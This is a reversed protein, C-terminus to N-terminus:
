SAYVFIIGQKPLVPVSSAHRKVTRLPGSTAQAAVAGARSSLGMERIMALQWIIAFLIWPTESVDNTVPVDMAFGDPAEAQAAVDLDLARESFVLLLLAVMHDRLLHLQTKTPPVEDNHDISSGPERLKDIEGPTFAESGTRATAESIRVIMDVLKLIFKRERVIVETTQREEEPVGGAKEAKGRLSREAFSRVNKYLLAKLESVVSRRPAIPEPETHEASRLAQVEKMPIVLGRIRTVVDRLRVKGITETKMMHFAGKTDIMGEKQPADFRREVPAQPTRTLWFLAAQAGSPIKEAYTVVTQSVWLQAMVIRVPNETRQERIGQEETKVREPKMRADPQKETGARTERRRHERRKSGGGKGQNNREKVAEPPLIRRIFADVADPLVLSVYRRMEAVEQKTPLSARVDKTTYAERVHGAERSAVQSRAIHRIDTDSITIHKVFFHAYQSQDGPVGKSGYQDSLREIFQKGEEFTFDKGTTAYLDIQKSVIHNDRREWVQVYRISDPHSLASVFGNAEGNIFVDQMALQAQHEAANYAAPNGVTEAYERTHEWLDNLTVWTDGYATALEKVGDREIVRWELTTETHNAEKQEYSLDQALRKEFRERARQKVRDASWDPHEAALEPEIFNMLSYTAADASFTHDGRWVTQEPADDDRLVRMGRATMRDYFRKQEERRDDDAQKAYRLSTDNAPFPKEM